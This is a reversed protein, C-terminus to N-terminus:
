PLTASGRAPRRRQARACPPGGSRAERHMPQRAPSDPNTNGKVIAKRWVLGSDREPSWGRDRSVLRARRQGFRALRDPDIRNPISGITDHGARGGGAGVTAWPSGAGSSGGAVCTYRAAPPVAVTCGQSLRPARRPSATVARSVQDEGPPDRACSEELPFQGSGPKHRMAQRRGTTSEKGSPISKSPSTGPDITAVPPDVPARM